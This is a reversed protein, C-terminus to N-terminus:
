AADSAVKSPLPESPEDGVIVGGGHGWAIYRWSLNILTSVRNRTGLLYFLHLALWALWAITGTIRPGRPIQVVASRRGITAMTGKDKYRFSSTDSGRVLAGIQAAAHRGQQLAPQALQPAPDDPNLAIDGVAFIRASDQVRLDPGVLVRGGRGQPLGWRAVAAPAAVGAAWVTVDSRLLGDGDLVVGNHKVSRIKTNLRVDVGRKVLQKRTYERLKEDFPMLLAPAMEILRVHVRCPDVNPFTARLVDSSLEGLTGALEVGTAGGGVVTIAFQRDDDASLQEFGSMIHDRLVLADARTYLGFTYAEAGPVGFYNASMGTAIILYDYGLSRGDALKVTRADTDIAALDGRIYKAKRHVASGGVPYAIDGPNLGGTAVQYLLPQFGSYLNKDIITVRVPAKRLEAVASLGAFGAGVVIVHPETM